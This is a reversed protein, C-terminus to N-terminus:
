FLENEIFRIIKESLSEIKDKSIGKIILHGYRSLSHKITPIKEGIELGIKFEVIMPFIQKLYNLDIKRKLTLGETFNLFIISAPEQKIKYNIPEGLAVKIALEEINIGTSLPVLHSTILDGGLRPGMEIITIIDNNIKFEPHIACNDLGVIEVIRNLTKEIEKYLYEYKSPQLHALEVNYPAKSVIKDTIQIINVKGNQVIAEVSIEDGELYQEIIFKSQVSHLLTEEICVEFQTENECKIVGRSGSNSIPKFIIPYRFEKKNLTKWNSVMKGAANNIGHAKLIEKFRWKDLVNSCALSKPFKLSLQEAVKAMMMIPKDTASSIVGIINHKQAIELTLLLDNGMVKYFYDSFQKGIANEDPDIVVTVFNLKKCLNIISLQLEGGGFILVSDM